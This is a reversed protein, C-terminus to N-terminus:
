ALATSRTATGTANAAIPPIKASFVPMMLMPISPNRMREASLLTTATTPNVSAPTEGRSASHSPSTTPTRTLTTAAATNATNTM